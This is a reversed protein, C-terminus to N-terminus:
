SKTVVKKVTMCLPSSVSPSTFTFPKPVKLIVLTSERSLTLTLVPSRTNMSPCWFILKM